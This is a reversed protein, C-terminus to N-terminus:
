WTNARLWLRDLMQLLWSHSIFTPSPKETFHHVTDTRKERQFFDSLEGLLVLSLFIGLWGAVPFWSMRLWFSSVWDKGRSGFTNFTWLCPYTQSDPVFSQQWRFYSLDSDAVKSSAKPVPTLKNWPQKRKWKQQDPIGGSIFNRCALTRGNDTKLLFCRVLFVRCFSTTEVLNQSFLMMKKNGKWSHNEDGGQCGLRRANSQKEHIMSLKKHRANTYQLM